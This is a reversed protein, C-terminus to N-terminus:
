DHRVEGEAQQKMVALVEDLRVMRRSKHIRYHPIQGNNLSQLVQRYQVGLLSAAQKVTYLKFPSSETM